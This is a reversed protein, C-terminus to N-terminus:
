GDLVFRLLGSRARAVLRVEAESTWAGRALAVLATRVDLVMLRGAEFARNLAAQLERAARGPDSCVGTARGFQRLGDAGLVALDVVDGRARPGARGCRTRTGLLRRRRHWCCWTSTARREGRWRASARTSSALTHRRSRGSTRILEAWRSSTSTSSSSRRVVRLPKWTATAQGGTQSGVFLM